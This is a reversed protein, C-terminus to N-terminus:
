QITIYVRNPLCIISDGKESIHGMDICIKNSCPSDAMYVERHEIIVTSIGLPGQVEVTRDESLPYSGVVENGQEIVITRGYSNSILEFALFAGGILAAALLIFIIDSKKM